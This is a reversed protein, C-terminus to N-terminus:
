EQVEEWKGLTRLFVEARQRASAHWIYCEPKNGENAQTMDCLQGGYQALKDGLTKEAEHMANLDDCFNYMRKTSSSYPHEWLGTADTIAENIQEDTM